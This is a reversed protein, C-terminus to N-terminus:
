LSEGKLGCTLTQWVLNAAQKPTLEEDRVQLWAAYILNDYSEAIWGSPINPSFTGEGKAQDITKILEAREIKHIESTQPSGSVADSALFWQRDALPIIADLSKRLAQSYTKSDKIAAEVAQTLEKSAVKALAEMLVDRSSFYRHLTARGVGAHEAVQALSSGPNRSFVVFGAEIIAQEATM